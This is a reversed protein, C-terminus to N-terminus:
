GMIISQLNQYHGFVNEQLWIQVNPEQLIKFYSINMLIFIVYQVNAPVLLTEFNNINSLIQLM